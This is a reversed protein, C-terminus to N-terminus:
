AKGTLDKWTLRYGAVKALVAAFRDADLLARSNFRFVQEDVYRSIHKPEPKIYTGKVSRKLLCWFNEIGNTHVQGRVYEELLHDVYRHEYAFELPRYAHHGDTYVHSGEAVNKVVGAQMHEPRTSPIPFARVEGGRQLVGMVATKDWYAAPQKAARKRKSMNRVKGGIFTEDVEVTGILPAQFGKTQMALRIRQLMFWSTKQTVGISRALEHSSVGNKASSLAWVAPLWKDLGIPSDEFITGVKVSFQRRCLKCRFMRRTPMDSIDFSSCSPCQIGEPWRLHALFGRAVDLDAFYKVAELLTKPFPKPEKM